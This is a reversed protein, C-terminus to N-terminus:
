ILVETAILGRRGCATGVQNAVSLTPAFSSSASLRGFRWMRGCHRNPRLSSHPLCHTVVRAVTPTSPSYGLATSGVGCRETYGCDSLRDLLRSLHRTVCGSCSAM